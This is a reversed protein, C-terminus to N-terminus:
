ITWCQSGASSLASCRALPPLESSAESDFVRNQLREFVEARTLVYETQSEPDVIRLYPNRAAAVAESEGPGLSLKLLQVFSHNEVRRVECWEPLASGSEEFVAPPILVHGYLARLLDLRGIHALAILCSSDAITVSEPM